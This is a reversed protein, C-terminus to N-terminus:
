GYKHEVFKTAEIKKLFYSVVTLRNADLNHAM